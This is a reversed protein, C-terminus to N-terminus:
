LAAREPPPRTLRRVQKDDSGLALKNEINWAGACRPLCGASPVV